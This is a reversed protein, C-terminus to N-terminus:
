LLKLTTASRRCPALSRALVKDGMFAIGSCGCVVSVTVAASTM